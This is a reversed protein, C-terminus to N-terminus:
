PTPYLTGPADTVDPDIDAHERRLRVVQQDTHRTEHIRIHLEERLFLKTVTVVREELIPVIITEGDRRVPPPEDVDRGIMVREVAVNQHRLMTEVLEDHETVTIRVRARGTEVERKSITVTEEVVPIITTTDPQPM